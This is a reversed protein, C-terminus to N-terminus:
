SLELGDGASRLARVVAPDEEPLVSRPDLLLVNGSLRGVIPPEQAILRRALAQAVNQEGRKM